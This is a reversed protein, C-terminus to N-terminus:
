FDEEINEKYQKWAFWLEKDEQSPIGMKAGGASYGKEGAKEPYIRAGKETFSIKTLDVGKYMFPRKDDEVQATKTRDVKKDLLGKLLNNQEKLESIHAETTKRFDQFEALIKDYAPSSAASENKVESEIKAPKNRNWIKGALILIALGILLWKAPIGTWKGEAVADGLIIGMDDRDPKNLKLFDPNSPKVIAGLRGLMINSFSILLTPKALRVVAGQKEQEKQTLPPDKKEEPAPDPDKRVTKKEPDEIKEDKDKVEFNEVAFDSENVDTNEEVITENVEEDLVYSFDKGAPGAPPDKTENKIEDGAAVPEEILDDM